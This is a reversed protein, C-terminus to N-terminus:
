VSFSGLSLFHLTLTQTVRAHPARSTPQRRPPEPRRSGIIVHLASM